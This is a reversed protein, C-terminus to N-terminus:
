IFYKKIQSQPMICLSAPCSRRHFNMAWGTKNAVSIRGLVFIGEVDLWKICLYPATLAFVGGEPRSIARRM